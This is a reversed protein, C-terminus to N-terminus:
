TAGIGIEKRWTSRVTTGNDGTAKIRARRNQCKKMVACLLRGLINKKPAFSEIRECPILEKEDISM